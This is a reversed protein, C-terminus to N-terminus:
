GVIGENTLCASIRAAIVPWAAHARYWEQLRASKSALDMESIASLDAAPIAYTLPVPPEHEEKMVVACGYAACAMFATSKSWTAVTVNTLAFQARRLLTAVEDSPLGGYRMIAAPPLCRTLIEEAMPSFKEDSPGIVHLTTLLGQAHWEKLRSEFQRCVQLRGYPLGFLAFETRCRSVKSEERAAINAGVPVVQVDERGSLNRLRERHWATNTVLVDGIQTLKRVLREEVKGLWFHPSTIPLGGGPVEHFIVMLRASPFRKKWGRLVSPLWIPLGYRQYARGAYHLIVDTGGLSELAHALRSGDGGFEIKRESATLEGTTAEVVMFVATRDSDPWHKQLLSSYTGIGCTAPPLRTTIIGLPQSNM